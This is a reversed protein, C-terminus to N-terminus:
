AHVCSLVLRHSSGQMRMYEPHMFVCTSLGVIAGVLRRSM